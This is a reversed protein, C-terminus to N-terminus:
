DKAPAAEAAQQDVGDAAPEAGTEAPEADAEAPEESAGAPEGADRALRVIEPDVKEPKPYSLRMFEEFSLTGQRVPAEEAPDVPVGEADRPLEEHIRKKLFDRVLKDPIPGAFFDYDPFYLRESVQLAERGGFQQRRELVELLDALEQREIGAHGTEYGKSVWRREWMTLQGSLGELFDNSTALLAIPPRWLAISGALSTIMNLRSVMGELSEDAAASFRETAEILSRTSYDLCEGGALGSHHQGRAVHADAWYWAVLFLNTAGDAAQSRADAPLRAWETLRRHVGEPLLRTPADSFGAAPDYVRPMFLMPNMMGAAEYSGSTLTQRAHAAQLARVGAWIPLSMRKSSIEQLAKVIRQRDDPVAPDAAAILERIKRVAEIVAADDAAPELAAALHADDDIARPAFQALGAAFGELRKLLRHAEPSAQRGYSEIYEFGMRAAPVISYRVQTYLRRLLDDSWDKRGAAKLVLAQEIQMVLAMVEDGVLRELDVTFADIQEKEPVNRFIGFRVSNVDELLRLQHLRLADSYFVLSRHFRGAKADDRAFAVQLFLLLERRGSAQFGDIVLRSHEGFLENLEGVRKLIRQRAEEDEVEELDQGLQWPEFAQSGIVVTAGPEGAERLAVLADNMAPVSPNLGIANPFFITAMNRELAEYDALTYFQTTDIRTRGDKAQFAMELRPTASSDKERDRADQGAAKADDGARPPPLTLDRHLIIHGRTDTLYRFGYSLFKGFLDQGPPNAADWGSDRLFGAAIADLPIQQRTTRRASQQRAKLLALVKPPVYGPDDLALRIERDAESEAYGAELLVRELVQGAPTALILQHPIANATLPLHGDFGSFHIVFERRGPEFVLRSTGGQEDNVLLYPEAEQSNDGSDKFFQMEVPTDDDASIVVLPNFAFDPPGEAPAPEGEKAEDPRSATIAATTLDVLAHEQRNGYQEFGRIRQEVTQHTRFGYSALQSALFSPNNSATPSYKSDALEMANGVVLPKVGRAILANCQAIPLDFLGFSHRGLRWERVPPLSRFVSEFYTTRAHGREEPLPFRYLLRVYKKQWVGQPDLHLIAPVMLGVADPVEMLLFRGYIIQFPRYRADVGGIPYGPRLLGDVITDPQLFRANYREQVINRTRVAKLFEAPGHWPMIASGERHALEAIPGRLGELSDRVEARLFTEGPDPRVLAERIVVAEVQCPDRAIVLDIMAALEGRSVVRHPSGEDLADPYIALAQQTVKFLRVALDGYVPGEASSAFPKWAEVLVRGADAYGLRNVLGPSEPGEGVVSLIARYGKVWPSDEDNSAKLIEERKRRLREVESWDQAQRALLARDHVDLLLEEVPQVVAEDAAEGAAAPQAAAPRCGIAVSVACAFM